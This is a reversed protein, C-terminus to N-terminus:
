DDITISRNEVIARAPTVLAGGLAIAGAILYVVGNLSTWGLWDVDQAIAIIGAVILVPGALTLSSVSARRAGSGIMVVLGLVIHSIALAGTMSLGAVTTTEGTLDATGTRILGIAGIVVGAMGLVFAIAQGAGMPERVVSEDVHVDEHRTRGTADRTDIHDHHIAM